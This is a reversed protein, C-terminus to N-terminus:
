CARAEGRRQVDPFPTGAAAAWNRLSCAFAAADRTRAIDMSDAVIGRMSVSFRGGLGSSWRQWALNACYLGALPDAIADGVFGARGTAARLAAGLGAAMGCDDGFGVWNAADGDTGHGTITIWTLGPSARVLANADIGFQALARPRAAEIVVDSGAIMALLASRGDERRLDVMARVKDRNLLAFFAADGDRMADPRAPSEVKTVSAGALGLLHTALPGAWLASLDLVRPGRDQAPLAVAPSEAMCRMAPNDVPSENEGAIALGMTRGREVIDIMDRHRLLSEIAIDDRFDLADVEFLAPLLERDSPRSLNLAVAGGICAYLKCGGGASVQSPIRFGGLMAREGLLTAGDIAALAASGSARAFESLWMDAVDTLPIAVTM